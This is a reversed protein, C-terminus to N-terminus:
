AADSQKRTRRTKPAEVAEVEDDGNDDEVVIASAEIKAAQRARWEQQQEHDVTKCIRYAGDKSTRDNGFFTTDRVFDGDEVRALPYAVKSSACMRAIPSTFPYSTGNKATYVWDFTPVEGEFTGANMADAVQQPDIITVAAQQKRTRAM